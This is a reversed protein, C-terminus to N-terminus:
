QNNPVVPEDGKGNRHISFYSTFITALIAAIAEAPLIRERVCYLFAMGGVITLYYRGSIIKDIIKNM